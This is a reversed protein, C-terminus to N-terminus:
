YAVKKINRVLLALRQAVPRKRNQARQFGHDACLSKGAAVLRDLIKKGIEFEQNFAPACPGTVWAAVHQRAQDLALLIALPQARLLEQVIADKQEIGTVLSGGIQDAVAQDRECLMRSLFLPQDLM